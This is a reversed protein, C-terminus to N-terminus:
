NKILTEGFIQEGYYGHAHGCIYLEPKKNLVYEALFDIGLHTNDHHADLVGLPPNHALVIDSFPSKQLFEKTEEANHDWIKKFGPL